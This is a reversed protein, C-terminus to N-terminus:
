SRLPSILVKHPRVFKDNYQEWSGIMKGERNVIYLNHDWRPQRAPDKQSM